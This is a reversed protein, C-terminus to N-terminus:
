TTAESFARAVSVATPRHWPRVLGQAGSNRWANAYGTGMPAPPSDYLYGALRVTAENAVPDPVTPALSQVVARAADGIRAAAATEMSTDGLRLAAQIAANTITVAM